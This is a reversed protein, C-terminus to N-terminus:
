IISVTRKFLSSSSTQDHLGSRVGFAKLACSVDGTTFLASRTGDGQLPRLLPKPRTVNAFLSALAHIGFCTHACLQDCRWSSAMSEAPSLQAPSLPSSSGCAGAPWAAAPWLRVQLLVCCYSVAIIRLDVRVCWRVEAGHAIGINIGLTAACAAVCADSDFRLAAIAFAEEM